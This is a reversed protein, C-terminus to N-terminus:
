VEFRKKPVPDFTPLAADDDDMDIAMDVTTQFLPAPGSTPSSSQYSVPEPRNTQGSHNAVQTSEQSGDFFRKARKALGRKKSSLSRRVFDRLAQKTAELREPDYDGDHLEATQKKVVKHAWLTLGSAYKLRLAPVAVPKSLGPVVVYIKGLDSEDVHIDVDLEAGYKMRIDTLERSNYFLDEFQIGKHTLKRQHLTGVLADFSVTETPMRIEEPHIHAKWMAHPTTGLSRHITQHYYDVIWMRLYKHLDSLTVCASRLADYDGREITNAFSTGPLTHAFGRNITGFFREITGKFWPQKRPSYTIDMSLSYCLSELSKSHFDTGQDTVLEDMVGYAIWESKIEPFRERLSTKPLVADKLCRAVTSFSPPDFGVYIGLVCRTFCDICITLTPRGLPTFTHEDIVFLDLVTHDIEARQLPREVDPKLGVSRFRVRAEHRGRTALTRQYAPLEKVLRAVLRRSPMPLPKGGPRVLNEARVQATAHDLAAKITSRERKLYTANIATGCLALVDAPFRKKRNGKQHDNNILSRYDGGSATYKKKWKWVSVWGPRHLPKGLENWRDSIAAEMARRTNPVDLTAIVYLRKLKAAEDQEASIRMNVAAPSLAPGTSIFVMEGQEVSRLLSNTEYEAIRGTSTNEVQWISDNVKRIMRHESGKMRVLTNAQFQAIGM